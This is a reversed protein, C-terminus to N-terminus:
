SNASPVPNSGPLPPRGSAGRLGGETSTVGLAQMGRFTITWDGSNLESRAILRRDEMRNHVTRRGRPTLSKGIEHYPLAKSASNWLAKLIEREKRTISFSQQM